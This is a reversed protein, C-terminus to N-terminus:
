RVLFAVYFVSGLLIFVTQIINRNRDPCKKCEFQKSKSYDLDCDGCVIGGYGEECKGLANTVDGGLCVAQNPCKIFNESINSSRWYGPKPYVVAKGSSCNADKPCQKCPTVKEPDFYQYFGPPCAVCRNDVTLEEGAV